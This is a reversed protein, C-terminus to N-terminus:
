LGSRYSKWFKILEEEAVSVDITFNEHRNNHLATLLSVSLCIGLMVYRGQRQRLYCICSVVYIILIKGRVLLTDAESLSTKGDLGPVNGNVPKKLKNIDYADQDEEGPCTGVAIVTCALILLYLKSDSEVCPLDSQLLAFVLWQRM